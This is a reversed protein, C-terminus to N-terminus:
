SANFHIEFNSGIPLNNKVTVSANHNKVIYKVIYLGLGTGKSNRTSENGARYFKTFIKEKDSDSVGLGNDKVRLLINSKEELLDILIEKQEPSYKIANDVLNTIISPFITVDIEAFINEQIKLKLEGKDIEKKYYRNLIKLTLESINQKELKFIFEGADLRSALLVNDILSNLRETETLANAILEQQTIESLKQKQLTQLQLKTAAIPTKLEHTISLFFNKQQNNLATEKDQAQKIKYIGFLLLLLFITGEGVVMIVQMKKKQHLFNIERILESDNTLTLESIKQKLDIIQGTQKVLLVEWWLFQLLIYGFLLGLIIITRSRAKM